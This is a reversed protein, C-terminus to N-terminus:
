QRNSYDKTQRSLEKGSTAKRSGLTTIAGAFTSNWSFTLARWNTLFTASSPFHTYMKWLETTSINITRVLAFHMQIRKRSLSFHHRWLLNQLDFIVKECTKKLSNMLNRKNQQPLLICRVIKRSLTPNWISLTTGLDHNLFANRHRKRLFQNTSTILKRFFITWRNRRKRIQNLKIMLLNNLYLSKLESGHTKDLRTDHRDLRHRSRDFEQVIRPITM